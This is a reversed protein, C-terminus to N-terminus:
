TYSFGGQFGSKMAAILNVVQAVAEDTFAGPADQPVILSGDFIVRSRVTTVSSADVTSYPFTV